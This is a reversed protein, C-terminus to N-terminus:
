PLPSQALPEGVAKVEKSTNLALWLKTVAEEPTEFRNKTAVRDTWTGASFVGTKKDRRLGAFGDGCAEILESLTPDFYESGDEFVHITHRWNCSLFIGSARYKLPFGADKLQKALEYTM